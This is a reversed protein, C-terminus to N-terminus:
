PRWRAGTPSIAASSTSSWSTCRAFASSPTSTDPCAVSKMGGGIIHLSIRVTGLLVVPLRPFVGNTTASIGQDITILQVAIYPISFFALLFAAFLGFGESYYRERLYDCPTQFGYEKGLIWIRYGM